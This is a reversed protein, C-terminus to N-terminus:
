LNALHQQVWPLWLNGLVELLVLFCLSCQHELLLLFYLDELVLLYCLHQLVVLHLLVLLAM